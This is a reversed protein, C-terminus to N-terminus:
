SFCLNAGILPKMLHRRTIWLREKMACCECETDKFFFINDDLFLHNTIIPCNKLINISSTNNVSELLSEACIFLCHIAMFFDQLHNLSGGNVLSNHLQCVRICNMM